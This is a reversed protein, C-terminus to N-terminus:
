INHSYWSITNHFVNKDDDFLLAKLEELEDKQLNCCYKISNYNDRIEMLEYGLAHIKNEITDNTRAKSLVLLTKYKMNVISYQEALERLYNYLENSDVTM